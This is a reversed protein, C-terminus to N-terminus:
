GIRSHVEEHDSLPTGLQQTQLSASSRRRNHGAHAQLQPDQGKVLAQAVDNHEKELVQVCAVHRTLTHQFTTSSVHRCHIFYTYHSPM